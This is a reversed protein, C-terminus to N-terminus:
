VSAVSMEEYVKCETITSPWLVCYLVSLINRVSHQNHVTTNINCCVHIKIRYQSM